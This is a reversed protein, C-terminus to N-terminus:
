KGAREEGSTRETHSQTDKKIGGEEESAGKVTGGWDSKGGESQCRKMTISQCLISVPVITKTEAGFM